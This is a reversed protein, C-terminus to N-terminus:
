VLELLKHSERLVTGKRRRNLPNSRDARKIAHMKWAMAIMTMQACTHRQAETGGDRSRGRTRAPLGEHAHADAYTLLYTRVPLLNDQENYAEIQQLEDPGLLCLRLKKVAEPAVEAPKKGQAQQM